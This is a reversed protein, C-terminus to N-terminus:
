KRKDKTIYEDNKIKSITGVSVGYIEALERYSREDNKIKIVTENDKIIKKRGGRRARQKAGEIENKLKLNEDILKKIVTNNLMMNESIINEDKLIIEDIYNCLITSISIKKNDSIEKLKEKKDKSLRIQLVESKNM